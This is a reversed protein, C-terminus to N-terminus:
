EFEKCIARWLFPKLQPEKFYLSLDSLLFLPIHNLFHRAQQPIEKHHKMLEPLSYLGYDSAIILRLEPNALLLDWRKEQEIKASSFIRAPAFYRTIAQAISQLFVLSKDQDNFSLIMVSPTTQETQWTNKIKKALTDSPIHDIFIYHPYQEKLIHKFEQCDVPTLAPLPELSFLASYRSKQHSRDIITPPHPEPITPEPYPEPPAPQPPLPTPQPPPKQPPLPSSSSPILAKKATKPSALLLPPLSKKELPALEQSPHSSKVSKQLFLYTEHNTTLKERLSFERLLFLQTLSVLKFYHEQLSNM